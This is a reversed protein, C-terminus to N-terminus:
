LKQLKIITAKLNHKQKLTIIKQNNETEKNGKILSRIGNRSGLMKYIKLLFFSKIFYTFYTEANFFNLTLELFMCFLNISYEMDFM